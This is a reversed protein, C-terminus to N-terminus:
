WEPAPRTGYPVGEGAPRVTSLTSTHIMRPLRGWPVEVV